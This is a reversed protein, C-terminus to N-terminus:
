VPAKENTEPHVSELAAALENVAPHYQPDYMRDNKWLSYCLLLLKRMVAIVGPKGNPHRARLRTYFAMQQPNYRLSSIAPLYLATRLRVNGRRSIRTAGAFLGSQRQVVDLGAYSALQRENDVLVFGSTEAVVVIATTLGIGLVSTLQRLKRGLEPEAELLAALDQDVALLQQQILTQQTALRSLSRADPQYSHQYAHIKVKLRAGHGTLSQRERALARLQRLAPSPPQWAPLARELGLRCLLRADLQDTKSKQETSQAFHKAKNPLLVSLAQAKDSLFYALEEYYVGTAEVVFWIPAPLVAQKETWSLLAAFGTLTNDFSTQKGFRLHQRADIQGFCAVFTDKAIDIGVVFKLPSTCPHATPM